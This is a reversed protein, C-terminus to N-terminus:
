KEKIKEIVKYNKANIFNINKDLYDIKKIKVYYKEYKDTSKDDYLFKNIDKRDFDKNELKSYKVEYNLNNKTKELIYIM